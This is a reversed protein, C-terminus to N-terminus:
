CWFCDRGSYRRARFCFSGIRLTYFCLGCTGGDMTFVGCTRHAAEKIPHFSLPFKASAFASSLPKLLSSQPLNWERPAFIWKISRRALLVECVATVTEPAPAFCYM